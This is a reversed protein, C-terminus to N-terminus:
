HHRHHHDSFCSHQHDEHGENTNEPPKPKTTIGATLNIINRRKRPSLRDFLEWDHDERIPDDMYYVFPFELYKTDKEKFSIEIEAVTENSIAWLCRYKM